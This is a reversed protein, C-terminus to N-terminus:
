RAAARRRHVMWLAMATLLFIAVFSVITAEPKTYDAHLVRWPTLGGKQGIMWDAVNWAAHLAIPLALGRGAAAAMGFLLGGPLVGIIISPLSWGYAVHTLAFAVATTLQAPWFGFTGELRRLAWGRFGLEEMCSLALYTSIALLVHELGGAGPILRAGDVGIAVTLQVAYMALGLTVGMLFRVWTTPTVSLGSQSATVHSRRTVALSLVLVGIASLTSWALERQAPPAFSKMAGAAFLIALYAGWFSAVAIITRAAGAGAPSNEQQM